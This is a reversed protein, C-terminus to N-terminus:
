VVEACAATKGSGAVTKIYVSQNDGVDVWIQGGDGGTTEAELPIYCSSDSFGWLMVTDSYNKIFVGRRAALRSAGSKVETATTSASIEFSVANGSNPPLVENFYGSGSLKVM